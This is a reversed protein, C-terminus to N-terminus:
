RPMPRDSDLSPPRALATRRVTSAPVLSKRRWIRYCELEPAMEQAPVFDLDRLVEDYLPNDWYDSIDVVYDAGRCDAVVRGPVESPWHGGVLHTDREAFISQGLYGKAYLPITPDEPCVVKGPLTGIRELASAYERDCATRAVLFTNFKTMHPFTNMLLLLAIFGGLVMRVPLPSELNGLGKLLRPLRLICFAMMVLLAPLLSNCWGGVKGATLASYPVAVVLVALLWRVRPDRRAAQPDLLLCETFLVVFLPSDLLLDWAMRGTRRADLGFARPVDIMYHYVAPSVIRLAVIVGISAALPFMALLIEARSPKRWRLVLAVAPVAAFIFATQKFFFGAVLCATGLAVARIRGREQGYGLLLVGATAFLIASMDPRNEAFYQGSRHNVGLIAAWAIAFYWRSPDGRMTVALLTVALLASILTLVRGSVNNPATWRFIEGQIWPVLAGYVHTSHGGDPPEYVPMGRLSRWAELVEVSEWPNRPSPATILQFLNFGSIVCIFAAAALM